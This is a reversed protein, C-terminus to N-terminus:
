TNPHASPIVARSTDGVPIVATRVPSPPLTRVAPLAKGAAQRVDPSPPEQVDDAFRDSQWQTEHKQVSAALTWIWGRTM